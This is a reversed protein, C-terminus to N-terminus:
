NVEWQGISSLVAFDTNATVCVLEVVDWQDSPVLTGTVGTTTSTNGFHITQGANQLIQGLNPAANKIIIKFTDGVNCSAPLTADVGSVNNLIYGNGGVLALTTATIETWAYTSATSGIVRLQGSASVTTIGNEGNIDFNNSVPAQPGGTDGTISLVQGTGALTVEGSSVVFDTSNFKAVGKQSDTADAVTFEIANTGGVTSVGQTADGNLAINGAGDPVVPSTGSDGTLTDLDGGAASLALKQWTADGNSEFRVLIWEEGESGTQPNKDVRWLTQLAYNKDETTPRRPGQVTPVASIKRGVYKLPNQFPLGFGGSSM